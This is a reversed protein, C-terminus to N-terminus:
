LEVTMSKLGEVNKAANVDGLELAQEFYKLADNVRVKELGWGNAYMTGLNNFAKAITEKDAKWFPKDGDVSETSILKAHQGVIKKYWHLAKKYNQRHGKGLRYMDALAAQCKLPGDKAEACASYWKYAKRLRAKKKMEKMGELGEFGAYTIGLLEMSVISGKAAAKELFSIGKKFNKPMFEHGKLMMQGVLEEANKDGGDAAQYLWHAGADQDKEVGNRGFFLDIGLLSQATVDGAKASKVLGTHIGLDEGDLDAMCLLGLSLWCFSAINCCRIAAM